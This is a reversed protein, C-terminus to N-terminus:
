IIIVTVLECAHSKNPSSWSAVRSTHTCVLLAPYCNYCKMTDCPKELISVSFVALKLLQDWENLM